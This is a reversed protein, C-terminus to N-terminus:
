GAGGMDLGQSELLTLSRSRLLGCGEGLVLSDKLLHGTLHMLHSGSIRQVLILSMKDTMHSQCM